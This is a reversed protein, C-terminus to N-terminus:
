KLNYQKKFAAYVGNTWGFGDVTPYEGGGTELTLDIVNYKELLKGTAKYVKENLNTWRNVIELALTKQKCSELAQVAMYQLPAWGNPADWQQGNNVTTCVIGGPKLLSAKTTTAITNGRTATLAPNQPWLAVAFFGAATLKGTNQKNVFNYDAYFGITNNWFYKEIAAKRKEAIEKNVTGGNALLIEELRILLSNLDVPAYDTTHITTLDNDQRFWRSSFDWGSEAAARLHSYVVKPANKKYDDMAQESSFRMTMMKNTVATEATAIDEKYGEQRPIDVDDRYRNLVTGDNLKVVRLNATGPKLTEASKMWFNYEAQLAPLYKKYITNGKSQALLQVMLCFFPPQSRSLYYTRTGNPIRGYTKIIYAFNDVMNEVMKLQGNAQLGLMTFYSDWYYSETFRGGPIVFPKPMALLSSGKVPKSQTRQLVQWLETIHESISIGSKVNVVNPVAPTTFNQTIFNKLNFNAATKQTTYDKVIAAPDRNPTCDVFTKSDTFIAQTQVDIFLQGYVKDPPLLQQATLKTTTFLLMLIFAKKM